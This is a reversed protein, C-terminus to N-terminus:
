PTSESIYHNFRYAYDANTHNTAGQCVRQTRLLDALFYDTDIRISIRQRPCEIGIQNLLAPLLHGITWLDWLHDNNTHGHSRHSRYERRTLIPKPLASRDGIHATGLLTHNRIQLRGTRRQRGIKDWGM